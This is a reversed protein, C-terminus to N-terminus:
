GVVALPGHTYKRLIGPVAVGIRLVAVLLRKTLMLSNGGSLEIGDCVIM